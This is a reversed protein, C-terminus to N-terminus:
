TATTRIWFYHTKAQAASGPQQQNALAAAESTRGARMKAPAATRRKGIKWSNLVGIMWGSDLRGAQRTVILARLSAL